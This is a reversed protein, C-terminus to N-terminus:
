GQVAPQVEPTARAYVSGRLRSDRDLIKSVGWGLVLLLSRRALHAVLRGPTRGRTPVDLVEAISTWMVQETVVAALPVFFVGDPFETTLRAAASIALRT